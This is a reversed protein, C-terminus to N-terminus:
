PRSATAPALFTDMETVMRQPDDYMIFHRAGDIRVLRGDRLGAYQADFAVRMPEPVDKGAALVLVRASIKPVAERWDTTSLEYFAEAVTRPDSEMGWAAVRKVDEERTMMRPLAPNNQQFARWEDGSLASMMTRMAAARPRATEVTTDPAFLAPLFPVADVIVVPGVLDPEEAALGLAIVGGLSHGVVIPRELRQARIYGALDKRVGELTAGEVRPVGAFGALTLVHCDYRDRYHDVTASWVSGDSALGPIFIMATKARPAEPVRAVRFTESATATAAALSLLVGMVKATMSM